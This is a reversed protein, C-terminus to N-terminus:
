RKLKKLDNNKHGTNGTDRSQGDETKDMMLKYIQSNAFYYIVGHLFIVQKFQTSYTPSYKGLNFMNNYTSYQYYSWPDRNTYAIMLVFYLFFVCIAIEKLLAYMALEHARFNFVCYTTCHFVKSHTLLFTSIQNLDCQVRRPYGEGPVNWFRPFGFCIVTQSLSVLNILTDGLISLEDSYLHGTKNLLLFIGTTLMYIKWQLLSM